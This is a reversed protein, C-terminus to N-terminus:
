LTNYSQGRIGTDYFKILDTGCDKDSDTVEVRPNMM